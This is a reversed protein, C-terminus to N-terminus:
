CYTYTRVHTPQSSNGVCKAGRTVTKAPESNVVELEVTHLLASAELLDRVAGYTLVQYITLDMRSTSFWEYIARTMKRTVKIVESM